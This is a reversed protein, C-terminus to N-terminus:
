DGIKFEVCIPHHDSPYVGNVNYDVNEYTLVQVNGKYLIWDIGSGSAITDKLLGSDNEEGDLIFTQYVEGGPRANFDGMLFVPREKTWPGFRDLSKIREM